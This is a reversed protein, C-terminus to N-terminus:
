SIMQDADCDTDKEGGSPFMSGCALATHEFVKESEVKPTEYPKKEKKNPEFMGRRRRKSRAAKM